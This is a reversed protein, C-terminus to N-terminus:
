RGGESTASPSSEGIRAPTMQERLYTRRRADFRLLDEPARSLISSVAGIMRHRTGGGQEARFSVERDSSHIPAEDAARATEIARHRQVSLRLGKEDQWGRHRHFTGKMRQDTQRRAPSRCSSKSLDVAHSDDRTGPALPTPPSRRRSRQDVQQPAPQPTQKQSNRHAM